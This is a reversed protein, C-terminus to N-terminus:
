RTDPFGDRGGSPLVELFEEIMWGLNARGIENLGAGSTGEPPFAPPTWEDNTTNPNEWSEGPKLGKAGPRPKLSDKPYRKHKHTQADPYVDWHPWHGENEAHPRWVTGDPLELQPGRKPDNRYTRPDYEPPPPPMKGKTLTKGHVPKATKQTKSRHKNGDNRKQIKSQAKYRAQKKKTNNRIAKNTKGQNKGDSYEQREGTPDV